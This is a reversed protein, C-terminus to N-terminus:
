AKLYQDLFRVLEPYLSLRNALKVVGHGEDDFVRFEVPHNRLRLAQVIQEAENFPVRPDNAGHVVFLPSQIRDVRHIPSLDALLQRDTALYGYEVERLARRWASTNELFSELNAIGVVDIAAQFLDPFLTISSLVMYGGYSGGYIALRHGDLGPQHRIWQVLAEIDKVSDLRKERDDLHEYAKGYGTSGRVNPAVVAYGQAVLYQYLGNFGPREQSEPGGHVSIVVPVPGSLRPQYVLAPIKLGDFSVYRIIRPSVLRSGDLGTMPAKTLAHVAHSLVDVLTVNMNHDPGSHTVALTSGSADFALESIVTQPWSSIEVPHGHDVDYLYLKSYGDQNVSYALMHQAVALNDVDGEEKVLWTIQDPSSLQAIGVYNRMYDTAAYVTGDAAWQAHHYVAMRDSPTLCELRESALNLRYLSQDANGRVEYLLLDGAQNWDRVEWHGNMTRVRNPADPMDLSMTYVDYDKGNRKTSTYAIHQGDPSFCGFLHVADPEQTLEKEQLTRTDLWHLQHYENGGRDRTFIVGPRTPSAYVGSIREQYDTLLDPWSEPGKVGYVQFTGTLNM